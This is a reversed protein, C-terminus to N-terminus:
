GREKRSKRVELIGATLVATAFLMYLPLNGYRAYLSESTLRTVEAAIIGEKQERVIRGLPDIVGSIGRNAAQVVFRRTEVARFVACAFHAPLESSGAFWADNTM